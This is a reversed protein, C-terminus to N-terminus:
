VTCPEFYDACLRSEKATVQLRAKAHEMSAEKRRGQRGSLVYRQKHIEWTLFTFVNSLSFKPICM